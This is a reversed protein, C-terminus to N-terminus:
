KKVCDLQQWILGQEDKKPPAQVKFVEDGIALTDGTNMVPVESVRVDFVNTGQVGGIQGAQFTIDPQSRMVTISVPTGIGGAQFTAPIGFAQFGADITANLDVM